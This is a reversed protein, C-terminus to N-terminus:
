RASLFKPGDNQVDAHQEIPKGQDAVPFSTEGIAMPEFM